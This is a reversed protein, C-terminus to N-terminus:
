EVRFVGASRRRAGPSDGRGPPPRGSRGTGAACGTRRGARGSGALSGGAAALSSDASATKAPGGETACASARSRPTSAFDVGSSSGVRRSRCRCEACSAAVQRALRRVRRRRRVEAEAEGEPEPAVRERDDFASRRDEEAPEAAPERVRGLLGVSGEELRQPRRARRSGPSRASASRVAAVSLRPARCRDRTAARAVWEQREQTPPRGAQSRAVRRRARRRSGPHRRRAAARAEDRRVAEAGRERHRVAAGVPRRPDAVQERRRVERQAHREAPDLRRRPVDQQVQENERLAKADDALVITGTEMVYGRNAVHLAMLANQEVLLIPTGQENIERIIEFIKEVFIPALGM